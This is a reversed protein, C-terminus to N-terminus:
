PMLADPVTSVRYSLLQIKKLEDATRRATDGRAESLTQAAQKLKRGSDIMGQARDLAQITTLTTTQARPM